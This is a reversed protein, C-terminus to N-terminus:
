DKTLQSTWEVLQKDSMGWNDQFWSPDAFWAPWQTTAEAINPQWPINNVKRPHDMHFICLPAVFVLQRQLQGVRLLRFMSFSDVHGRTVDNEWALGYSKIFNEKASLIFDGSANTFIHTPNLSRPLQDFSETDTVPVTEPFIHAKFTHSLAFPIYQDENLNELGEGHYDYRDTRYVADKVLQRTALHDILENTFLIDPNSVLVFEGQARRIGVNKGWFELVPASNGISDHVKPPVTIIRVPYNAPQYIVNKLPEYDALPNWEVIVLEILDPYQKTQHDLSRIFTNLREMFNVGYNDNRGVIVISIYPTTM